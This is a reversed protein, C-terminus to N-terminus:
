PEADRTDQALTPRAALDATVAVASLGNVKRDPRPSLQRELVRDLKTFPEDPRPQAARRREVFILSLAGDLYELPLITRAIRGFPELDSSCVDSSWDSIRM